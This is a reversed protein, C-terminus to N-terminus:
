FNVRRVRRSGVEFMGGSHQLMATQAGSKAQFWAEAARVRCKTKDASGMNKSIKRGQKVKTVLRRKGGHSAMGESETVSLLRLQTCSIRAFLSM